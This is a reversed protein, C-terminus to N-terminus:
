LRAAPGSNSATLQPERFNRLGRGAGPFVRGACSLMSAKQLEGGTAGVYRRGPDMLCGLAFSRLFLHVARHRFLRVLSAALVADGTDLALRARAGLCGLSVRPLIPEIRCPALRPHHPACRRPSTGGFRDSSGPPARTRPPASATVLRCRARSIVRCMESSLHRRQSASAVSRTDHADFRRKGGWRQGGRAACLTVRVPVWLRLERKCHRCKM